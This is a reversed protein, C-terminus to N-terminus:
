PGAIPSLMVGAVQFDLPTGPQISSNLALDLALGGAGKLVLQFAHLSGDDEQLVGEVQQVGPGAVAATFSAREFHRPGRAGPLVLRLWGATAAANAQVALDLLGPGSLAPEAITSGPPCSFSGVASFELTPVFPASPAEDRETRLWTFLQLFPRLLLLVLGIALLLAVAGTLWDRLGGPLDVGLVSNPVADALWRRLSDPLWTWGNFEERRDLMWVGLDGVGRRGFVLLAVIAGGAALRFTQLWTTSRRSKPGDDVARQVADRLAHPVGAGDQAASGDDPDLPLRGLRSDSIAHVIRSMAEERNTWYGGHDSFPWDDNAVRVSVYPRPLGDPRGIKPGTLAEVLANPAEGQPVPDYRAYIDIWNVHRDIRRHWFVKDRDKREAHMRWALNLGSGATVWTIRRSRDQRLWDRVEKGALAEYSVVAGGSHAIVTVTDYELDHERLYRPSLFPYLATSVVNSAAAIAVYRNTMAHQDGINGTIFNLLERRLTKAADPLVWELPILLFLQVPILLLLGAFYVLTYGILIVIWNVADFFYAVPNGAVPVQWVGVGQQRPRLRQPLMGNLARAVNRWFLMCFTAALHNWFARLAWGIITAKDTPKFSEAWWAERVHWEEPSYGNPPTLHITASATTANDDRHTRAVLRVNGHGLARGLFAVIQEVVTDLQDARQQEGVGHVVVIGRRIV